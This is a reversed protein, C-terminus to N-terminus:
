ETAQKPNAAANSADQAADRRRECRVKLYHGDAMNEALGGAAMAQARMACEMPMAVPTRMVQLATEPTCDLAATAVSCIMVVAVLDM